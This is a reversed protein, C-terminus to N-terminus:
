QFRIQSIEARATNKDFALTLVFNISIRSM